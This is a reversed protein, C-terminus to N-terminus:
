AWLRSGFAFWIAALVAVYWLAVILVTWNSVFRTIAADPVFRSLSHRTVGVFLPIMVAWVVMCYPCLAGINYISQIQLWTVFAIGFVAGAQLGGWIWGKVPSGGLWVIGLTLVVAFGVVGIFSNPFGFAESQNSAMVGSCSIWPSLDCAFTSDKGAIKDQLQQVKDVSLVFSALLGIAGTVILLLAPAQREPRDTADIV